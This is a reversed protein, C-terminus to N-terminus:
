TRIGNLFGHNPKSAFQKRMWWLGNCYTCIKNIPYKSMVFSIPKTKKVAMQPQVAFGVVDFGVTVWVKVKDEVVALKDTEPVKISIVVLVDVAKGEPPRGGLPRGQLKLKVVPL